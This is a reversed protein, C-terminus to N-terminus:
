DNVQELMMTEGFPFDCNLLPRWYTIHCPLENMDTFRSLHMLPNTYIESKHHTVTSPGKWSLQTGMVVTEPKPWTDPDTTLETWDAM